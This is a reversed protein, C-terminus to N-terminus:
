RDLCEEAAREEKREELRLSVLSSLEGVFGFPKEREEYRERRKRVGEDTCV